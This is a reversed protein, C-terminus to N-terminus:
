QGMIFQANSKAFVKSENWSVHEIWQPALLVQNGPWWIPTDIILYRVNWTEEDIVFDEFLGMERDAAQIRHASWDHTCRSHSEGARRQTDFAGPQQRGDPIYPHPIWMYRSGLYMRCGYSGCNSDLFQRLDLTSNTSSPYGEIQSRALDVAIQRKEDSVSMLFHRSILVKRGSLWDRTDAVLYCITWLHDDIYIEEVTGIEGDLGQLTFGKLKKTNM